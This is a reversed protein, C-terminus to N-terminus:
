QARCPGLSALDEVGVLRAITLQDDVGTSLALSPSDKLQPDNQQVGNRHHGKNEPFKFHHLVGQYVHEFPPACLAFQMM